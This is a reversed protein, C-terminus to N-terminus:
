TQGRRAEDFALMTQVASNAQEMWDAADRVRGQDLADMARGMLRMAKDRPPEDTQAPIRALATMAVAGSAEKSAAAGGADM